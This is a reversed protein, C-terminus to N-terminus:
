KLCTWTEVIYDILAKANETTAYKAILMETMGQKSPILIALTILIAGAPSLVKFYKYAKREDEERYFEGSKLMVFLVVASLASVFGIIWCAMELDSFTDILYFYFPNIM